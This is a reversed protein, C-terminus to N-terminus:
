IGERITRGTLHVFVDELNSRSHDRMLGEATGEAILKGHDIIGIRDCLRQAEEMYHTSLVVTRGQDRLQSIIEWVARRSQPDMAVTPEDLFAIDPDNVLAMALSLRRKMGESYGGARRGSDQALGVMELLDAAREKSRRKAMGHLDGFLEVNEQGSLYPYVAPSQPCVGIRSRIDAGKGIDIGLVTASGEDVRQLGCLVSMFTSKGAGNPGLLGYLEGEKVDLTLGDLARVEGFRKVLGKASIAEGMIM